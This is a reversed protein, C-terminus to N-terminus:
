CSHDVREGDVQMGISFLRRRKEYLSTFDMREVLVEVRAALLHAREILQRLDDNDKAMEMMSQGPDSKGILRYFESWSLAQRIMANFWWVVNDSMHLMHPEQSKMWEAFALLSAAANEHSPFQELRTQMDAIVADVKENGVSDERMLKLSIVLSNIVQLLNVRRLNIGQLGQVLVLMAGALNGSDVTSLYRPPLPTLNKTDYWNFYHGRHIPLREMTDIMHNCREIWKNPPLYGLDCAALDALLAMGMNTPSTRHAILYKPQEQINDPPLWNESECVFTEFWRWTARATMEVIERDVHTLSVMQLNLPRCLWWAILPAITWLGILMGMVVSTVFPLSLSIILGLLVAATFPCFWLNKYFGGIDRQALREADSSTIWALRKKGSIVMRWLAVSLAHLSIWAEVPLMM